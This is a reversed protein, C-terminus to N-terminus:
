KNMSIIYPRCNLDQLEESHMKRWYKTVEVRWGLVRNDILRLRHQKGSIVFLYRCM